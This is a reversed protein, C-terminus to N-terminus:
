ELWLAEGLDNRGAGLVAREVGRVVLARAGGPLDGDQEIQALTGVKAYRGDLRPVLLVRGDARRADDAAHRAEPSDLALTVVMQPGVVGTTLPLVPYTRVRTDAM